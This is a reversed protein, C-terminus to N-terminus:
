KAEPLFENTFGFGDTIDEPLDKNLTRMSCILDFFGDWRAADIYGWQKADSKYEKALYNASGYILEKDAALEPNLEM